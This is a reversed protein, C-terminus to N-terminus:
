YERHSRPIHSREKMEPPTKELRTKAQQVTEFSQYIRQKERSALSARQALHSDVDNEKWVAEVHTKFERQKELRQKKRENPSQKKQLNLKPVALLVESFSKGLNEKCTKEYTSFIM